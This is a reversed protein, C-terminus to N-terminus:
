DADAVYFGGDRNGVTVTPDPGGHEVANRVLNEVMRDLRSPDALIEGDTTNRLTAGNTDVRGWADEVATSIDVPEPDTVEDGERALELLDAILSEMRELADAADDLHESDCEEQAFAVSGSAVTLPNRLDHSVM